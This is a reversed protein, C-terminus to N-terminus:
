LNKMIKELNSEFAAEWPKMKLAEAIGKEINLDSQNQFAFINKEALSQALYEQETQGPTPILLAKKGTLALDMLTTYGSRSIIINSSFFFNQLMESTAYDYIEINKILKPKKNENVVGRIILFKHNTKEAQALIKEEFISRQPEPGSLIVLVDHKKTFAIKNLRSLVGLYRISPLNDTNGHSLVGALSPENEVDPIWIEDFKKLYFHNIKRAIFNSWAFGTQINIQHTIFINKTQASFCGFRNDSIIIDINYENVINQIKKKEKKIQNFIKKSQALINWFMNESPYRIDYAPLEFTTLTPFEQQLLQLAGSDSAIFVEFHQAQLCRIIPICRTAHGLGWYLPTILIKKM